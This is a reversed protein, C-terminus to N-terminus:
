QQLGLRGARALIERRFHPTVERGTGKEFVSQVRVEIIKAQVFFIPTYRCASYYIDTLTRPGVGWNANRFGQYWSRVEGGVTLFKSGASGLEVYKLSDWRDQRCASDRLYSYDEDQCLTEYDPPDPCISQARLSIAGLVIVLWIAWKGGAM